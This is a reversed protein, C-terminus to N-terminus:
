LAVSTCENLDNDYVYTQVYMFGCVDDCLDIGARSPWM